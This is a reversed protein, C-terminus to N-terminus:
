FCKRHTRNQVGRESSVSLTNCTTRFFQWMVNSIWVLQIPFTQSFTWESGFPRMSHSQLGGSNWGLLTIRRKPSHRSKSGGSGLTAALASLHSVAMHFNFLHPRENIAMSVTTGDRADWKALRTTVAGAMSDFQHFSVEQWLPCAVQLKACSVCRSGLRRWRQTLRYISGIQTTCQMRAAFLMDYKLGLSADVCLQGCTHWLADIYSSRSM